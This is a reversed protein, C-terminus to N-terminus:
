AVYLTLNLILKWSNKKATSALSLIQRIAQKPAQVTSSPRIQPLAEHLGLQRQAQLIILNVFRQNETLLRNPSVM